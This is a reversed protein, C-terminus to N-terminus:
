MRGSNDWADLLAATRSNASAQQPTGGPGGRVSSAAKRRKDVDQQMTRNQIIKSISPHTSCAINYAEKLSMERGRNAAMELLDAMEGRVDSYFEHEPDSAFRQLDTEVMQQSQQFQQQERQQYQQLQQQLPSLRENLMQEFKQDPKEQPTEGVLLSDLTQIDVGFQKILNAVTQAKQPGSGMQLLSATQLLGPITNAPGGNMAFLQQFPQLTRDMAEARKANQAYKVIGAEYDQERKAIEARVADPTDKWAERAEPSLGKPPTNLPPNKDPVDSVAPGGEEADEVDAQGDSGTDTEDITSEVASEVSEFEASEPVEDEVEESVQSEVADGAASLEDQLTDDSM